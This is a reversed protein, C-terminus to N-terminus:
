EYPCDVDGLEVYVSKVQTYFNIAEPGNEHGIGSQKYGGITLEIPNLNYNNIWCTGAQLQAIVRHGRKIDQTFVGAALGYETDNATKIVEDEDEFTLLSLVPGFIEDQCITMENACNDFITPEVFAGEECGVPRVRNGGCLLRAGEEVGKNIYRLVQEMHDLSILAGVQTEPDMPDGIKLKETRNVLQEVFKDKISQHVFVRTGNTCIEGGSYFNAMMAASVANDIEADEFVILPSKGGLEMTVHKITGAAAELVKRGTATSGTVSVKEINPHSALGSGVEADGTLVNFVGDPLGAETFIEALKFTTLPTSPAPKYILSNGCALAMASKWCAIQIPYNWAGIGACVGLPERRTYGFANNLDVHYGRITPAIGAFYEICDAGSAIDVAITEQIPKGTDQTELEALEDNRERLLCVANMLIRARETGTMASWIRFGESASDVAKDLDDLGALQIDALVQGNAPNIDQYTQGSACDVFHGHIYIQQISM